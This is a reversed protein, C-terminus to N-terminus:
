LMKKEKSKFKWPMQAKFHMGFGNSYIQAMKLNEAEPLVTWDTSVQSVYM